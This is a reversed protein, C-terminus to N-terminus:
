WPSKTKWVGTEIYGNWIAAKQEKTLRSDNLAKKIDKQSANKAGRQSAIEKAIELVKVFEKTSVGASRAAKYRIFQKESMLNKMQLEKIWEDWDGNAVVMQKKLDGEDDVITDIERASEIVEEPLSSMWGGSNEGDFLIQLFKKAKEDATDNETPPEWRVPLSKVSKVGIEDKMKKEMADRVKDVAEDETMGRDILGEYYDEYIDVYADVDENMARYIDGFFVGSANEESYVIKDLEYQLEFLDLENLITNLIAVADRKINSVPIGLLDAVKALAEFGTAWVTKQGDGIISKAFQRMANIIETVSAMDSRDVSYGQILSMVDKVYPLYGFPNFNQWLNGGWFNSWADAFTEEKGTIGFYNEVFKESLEKDRDDDRLGDILSQALANVAFSATLAAVTRATSRIAANKEVETKANTLDVISRAVMNYIKSPEGMFNSAMKDLANSSRMIQTRHLVSDVVQTRDIIQGFREATAKYFADSGKALEPHLDATENEVANWLYGWTASDAAGAAWMTANRIKDVASETGVVLERLSRGTNIEFYGWDKWQAIQSYKKAKEWGKKVSGGAAFYKPDLMDLARFISTPQQVVVRLNAGVKAAKWNGTLAETIAKDRGAKTGQAIDGLLNDLYPEGNKGYVSELLRKVTDRVELDNDMYKFNILRNIDENTGLWAAYTSMQNLHASFSDMASRLEVPNKAKPQTLKTMGYGPIMKERVKSTPDSSVETRSVKIPWYNPEKFKKYGYVKMTEANGYDALTTSLYKQLGDMLKKQKDTLVGIIEAVDLSNVHIPQANRLEVVGKVTGISKLGGKLIHDVAQKRNMLAYLEMIQSTSLTLEGKALKFTHLEKDLKEFNVGSEQVLKQAAEVGNKIIEIQRDESRRMMRFLEDGADGLKHLFTEPTLMDFNVLKDLAGVPGAFSKRAASGEVNREVAEAMAAVSKYRGQEHLENASSITHEVIQLVKWVTDLEEKSMDALTKNGMGALEQLYDNMEPDISIAENGAAEELQKKLNLAALTRSTKEAGLVSGPAVRQYMADKTFDYEFGSELNIYKVLEFAVGRLEEPINQKNTPRLLKKGLRSAHRFITERRQAANQREIRDQNESEYKRKLEEAQEEYAKRQNELAARMERRDRIRQRHYTDAMKDAATPKENPTDYFREIIEGALYKATHDLDQEFPNGMVPKLDEVVDNLRILQDAPHFIDDPFLEPHQENLEMYVVDIPTGEKSLTFTGFNRKRIGEYGGASELDARYDPSISIKRGRLEKMFDSYEEAVSNVNASSEALIAYAISSADAEIEKWSPVGKIDQLTGAGSYKAIKNYLDEIRSTLTDADIGSSYMSRLDKASRKVVDRRVKPIDTRKLQEKLRKNQRELEDIRRQLERSGKVSKKAQPVTDKHSTQTSRLLGTVATNSAGSTGDEKFEILYAYQGDKGKDRINFTVEYGIGDVVINNNFKYWYKVGDHAKNKPPKNTVYSEEPEAPGKFVSSELIDAMDYLANIKAAFETTEEGRTFDGYLNKQATFRDGNVTIRKLDTRVSVAGLNFVTAIRSKFQKIKEADSVDNSFNTEYIRRGDKTKGVYEFSDSAGDAFVTNEDGRYPVSERRQAATMNRRKATERAEIEGATNLYRRGAESELDFNKQQERLLRRDFDAQLYADFLDGYESEMLEQDIEIRKDYDQDIVARNYAMVKNKLDAPMSDFIDRVAKDAAEVANRQEEKIKTVWFEPSAGGSFGEVQQIAHQIEHLLTSQPAHKITENLTITNYRSDYNGNAGNLKGFVVRVDRLDPYAEFLAPHDIMDELTANGKAVRDAMRSRERSWVEELELLRKHEEVTLTGLLMKDTLEQHEVYEPHDRRFRADGARHYKMGSDDIEFRWRQDKGRIWGTDRFITKEDVGRSEMEEARSLADLDATKAKVGAASYKISNSSEVSGQRYARNAEQLAEEWLRTAKDLTSTDAGAFAAKIRRIVDRIADLIRQALTRDENAIRRILDENELLEGAFDAALEDLAQERSLAQGRSAYLEQIARIKEDLGGRERLIQEVLNRYKTYADGAAEQIRHTIEHKAVVRVPDEASSSIYVKGNVIWGNNGGDQQTMEMSVGVAKALNDLYQQESKTGTFMDNPYFGPAKVEQIEAEVQTVNKELVGANHPVNQAASMNQTEKVTDSESVTKERGFFSDFFSKQQPTLEDSKKEAEARALNEQGQRITAALATDRSSQENERQANAEAGTAANEGSAQATVSEGASTSEAANQAVKKGRIIGALSDKFAERREQSSAKEAARQQEYAMMNSLRGIDLANVGTNGNAEMADALTSAMQYSKSKPDGKLAEDVLMRQAGNSLIDRGTQYSSIESIVSGAGSFVLGTLAGSAGAEIIQAILANKAKEEALKHAEEESLGQEKYQAEYDRVLYAYQSLDGMAFYDYAINAIETVTEESANVFASKAANAFLSKVGNVPIEKLKDFQGISLKEFLGEFVGAVAGGILAQSDSGGRAKIDNFTNSAASLGLLVAGGTGGLGAILSDASSLANNYLFKDVANRGEVAGSRMAQTADTVTMPTNMTKQIAALEVARAIFDAGSLLSTPISAGAALVPHEGAWESLIKTEEERQKAIEPAMHQNLEVTNPNNRLFDAYNLVAISFPDADPNSMASRMWVNQPSMYKAQEISAKNQLQKKRLEYAGDVRGKQLEKEGRLAALHDETPDLVLGKGLGVGFGPVKKELGVTSRSAFSGSQSQMATQYISKRRKEILDSYNGAM